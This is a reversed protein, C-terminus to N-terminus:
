DNALFLRLSASWLHSLQPNELVQAGQLMGGQYSLILLVIIHGHFIVYSEVFFQICMNMLTKSMITWLVSVIWIDM